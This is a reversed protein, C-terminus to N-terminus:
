LPPPSRPPPRPPVLPPPSSLPLTLTHQMFPREGTPGQMDMDVKCAIRTHTHVEHRPWSWCSTCMCVERARRTVVCVSGQTDGSVVGGVGGM